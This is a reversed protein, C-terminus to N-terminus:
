DERIKVKRIWICLRRTVEQNRIRLIDHTEDIVEGKGKGKGGFDGVLWSTAISLNSTCSGCWRDLFPM